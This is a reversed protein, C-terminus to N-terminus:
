KIYPTLLRTAEARESDSLRTNRALYDLPTQRPGLNEEKDLANIEVGPTQALIRIVELGANEAAYHLATRNGRAIALSCSWVSRMRANVDAGAALLLRVSEANDIQAAYMLPTKDFSNGENVPAGAKLLLRVLHPYRLAKVLPSDEGVDGEYPSPQSLDADKLLPAVDKASAGSLLALSLRSPKQAEQSAPFVFHSGIVIDMNRAAETQPQALGFGEDYWKALARTAIPEEMRFKQYKEWNWLGEAGWAELWKNQNDRSNYPKENVAWPRLLTKTRVRDAEIALRAHSNLTGCNGSGGVISFLQSFFVHEGANRVAEKMSEPHREVTCVLEPKGKAPIRYLNAPAIDEWVAGESLLFYQGKAKLVVPVAWDWEFPDDRGSSWMLISEGKGPRSRETRNQFAKYDAMSPFRALTYIDGRWSHSRGTMVLVEAKGDRDLDVQKTVILEDDLRTPIQGPSIEWFVDVDPWAKDIASVTSSASKFSEQEAAELGHCVEPAQNLTLKPLYPYRTPARGGVVPLARVQDLRKTYSDYLCNAAVFTDLAPHDTNRSLGCKLNRETVWKKQRAIPVGANRVADALELDIDSLRDSNCILREDITSAKACDFSPGAFASSNLLVVSFFIISRWLM